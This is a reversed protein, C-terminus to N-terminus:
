CHSLIGNVVECNSSQMWDLSTISSAPLQTTVQIFSTEHGNLSWHAYTDKEFVIM